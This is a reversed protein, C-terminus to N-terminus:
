RASPEALSVVADTVEKLADAPLLISGDSDIADWAPSAATEVVHVTAGASRLATFRPELANVDSSPVVFTIRAPAESVAVRGVSALSQLFSEACAFGGVTTGASARTVALGGVFAAGDVIPDWSVVGRVDRRGTAAAVAADAGVRLGVVVVHRVAALDRVEDIARGIDAALADLDAPPAEGASDGTGAYDFRLTAWGDRALATALQRFARHARMAEHGFPNALVVATKRPKGSGAHYVGYLPSAGEGFLLPM